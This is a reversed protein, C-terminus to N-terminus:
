AIGGNHVLANRCEKFYRYAVLMSEMRPWANKKHKVLLPFVDQKLLASPHANVADIGFRLGRRKGNPGLSTPFQLAKRIENLTGDGTAVPLARPVVDELWAEYLSCVDSLLISAFQEQQVEWSWKLCTTRLDASTVGSGEVFRRHLEDESRTHTTSEEVFDRVARRLSWM